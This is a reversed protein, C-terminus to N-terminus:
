GAELVVREVRVVVNDGVEFEVEDGKIVDVLELMVEVCDDDFEDRLVVRVALEELEVVDDTWDVFVVSEVLVNDEVVFVSGILLGKVVACDTCGEFLEVSDEAVLTREVVVGLLVRAVEM